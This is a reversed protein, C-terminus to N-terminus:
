KVAFPSLHRQFHSELMGYYVEEHDRLTALLQDGFRGLVSGFTMHL